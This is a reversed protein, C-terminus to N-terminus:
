NRNPTQREFGLGDLMTNRCRDQLNKIYINGKHYGLGNVGYGEIIGVVVLSMLNWEMGYTNEIEDGWVCVFM